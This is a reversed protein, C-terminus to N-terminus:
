SLKVTVAIFLSFLIPVTEHQRNGFLLKSALSTHQQQWRPDAHRHSQM